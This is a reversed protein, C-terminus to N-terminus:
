RLYPNVRTPSCVKMSPVSACVSQTSARGSLVAGGDCWSIGHFTQAYDKAERNGMERRTSEQEKEHDAICGPSPVNASRWRDDASDKLACTIDQGKWNDGRRKGDGTWHKLTERSPQRENRVTYKPREDRVIAHLVSPPAIRGM